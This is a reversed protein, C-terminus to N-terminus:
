RIPPKGAPYVEFSELTWRGELFKRASVISGRGEDVPGRKVPRQSPAGTCATLGLALTVVAAPVFRLHM